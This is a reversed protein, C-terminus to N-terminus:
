IKLFINIRLELIHHKLIHHKIIITTSGRVRVLKLHSTGMGAALYVFGDILQHKRM